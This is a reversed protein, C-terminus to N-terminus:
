LDLVIRARWPTGGGGGGGGEVVHLDHHTVAKVVRDPPDAVPDTCGGRLIGSARHEDAKDMEVLAPLFGGSEFLYLVETLWAVLVEERDAGKVAVRRNTWTDFSGLPRVVDSLALTAAALLGPWDNAEVEFALDATHPVLVYPPKEPPNV